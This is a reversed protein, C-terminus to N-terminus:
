RRGSAGQTRGPNLAGELAVLAERASAFRAAPDDATARAFWAEARTRVGSPAAERLSAGASWVDSAVSAAAGARQEPSAYRPTAGPDRAIGGALGLDGLKARGDASLLINAPKVDRHLMGVTHLADLALLVDRSIRGFSDEDLPGRALREKLSGGAVHEMVIWADDGDRLADYVTVVCPDHVLALARAEALAHRAGGRVRKLAVERGLLEDRALFTQGMGGEGLMRIKSYRSAVLPTDGTASRPRAVLEALLAHESASVGLRERLTELARESRPVDMADELAARYVELRRTALYGEEDSVRPMITDAVRGASRDLPLIAFALAGAAAVGVLTAGRQPLLSAALQSALVYAGIFFGFVLGRRVGGKVRLEVDFLQTRLIGYALMPVYVLLVIPFGLVPFLDWARSPALSAGVLPLVIVAALLLDRAGFAWAYARARVRRITAEPAERHALLAAVFGYASVAFLLAAPALALPGPRAEQAAYWTAQMGSVFSAPRLFLAVQLALLLGLAVLAGRRGRWVSVARTPLTALLLLYLTPLALSVATAFLQIPLALSADGAFYVIGTGTLAALGEFALVLALRHNDRSATRARAVVYSLTLALAGATIGVLGLPNWVLGM